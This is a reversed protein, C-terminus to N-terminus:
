DCKLIQIKLRAQNRCEKMQESRMKRLKVGTLIFAESKLGSCIFHGHLLGLCFPIHGKCFFFVQSTRGQDLETIRDEM